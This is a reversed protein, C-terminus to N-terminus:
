GFAATERELFSLFEQLDATFVVAEEEDSLRLVPTGSGATLAFLGGNGDSGFVIVRRGDSLTHPPDTHPPRHIWYGHTVAPLRVEAIAQHFALLDYPLDDGHTAVLDALEAETAAGAVEHVGAVQGFRREGALRSLNERMSARWQELWKRDM